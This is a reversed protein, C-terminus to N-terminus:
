TEEELRNSLRTLRAIEREGKRAAASRTFRWWPQFGAPGILGRRLAFGHKVYVTWGLAAKDVVAEAM